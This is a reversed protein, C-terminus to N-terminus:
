SVRFFLTRPKKLKKSRGSGVPLPQRGGGPKHSQRLPSLSPFAGSRGQASSSKASPKAMEAGQHPSVGRIRAEIVERVRRATPDQPDLLLASQSLFDAEGGPRPQEGDEAVSEALRARVAASAPALRAAAKWLSPDAAGDAVWQSLVASTSVAANPSGPRTGRDALFWRVWRPYFSDGPLKALRARLSLFICPGDAGPGTEELQRDVVAEALEPLWAPARPEPRLLPMLRPPQSRRVTWCWLGDPSFGGTKQLGASGSEGEWLRVLNAASWLRAAGDLGLTAVTSGDLSFGAWSVPMSHAAWEALLRGDTVSWVRVVGDGSGTVLRAGEPSFALCLVERDHRLAPGAPAGSARDWVQATQRADGTALRRGEPSFAVRIPSDGAPLSGTRRLPRTTGLHLGGSGLALAWYRGDPSLALQRVGSLENTKQAAPLALPGGEREGSPSHWLILELKESLGLVSEGGGIFEACLLNTGGPLAVEKPPAGDATPGPLTLLRTEGASLRSLVRRGTPAVRAWARGGPRFWRREETWQGAEIRFFRLGRDSTAALFDGVPSFAVELVESGLWPPLMRGARAECVLIRDAFFFLVRAGDPSFVAQEIFRGPKFVTSVPMGTHADFLGFSRDNISAGFMRGDPSFARAGMPAMNTLPPFRDQGTEPAVLHLIGYAGAKEEGLIAGGAPSLQTAAPDDALAVGVTRAQNFRGARLERDGFILLGDGWPSCSLQKIVEPVEARVASRVWNTTSYFRVENTHPLRVAVALWAGDPSFTAASATDGPRLTWVPEASAGEPLSFVSVSGNTLGIALRRGDPSAATFRAARPLGGLPAPNSAPEWDLRSVVALGDDAFRAVLHDANGAFGFEVLDNRPLRFRALPAPAAGNRIVVLGNTEVTALLRGDPSFGATAFRGASPRIEAEPLIWTRCSLLYLLRRAAALNDPQARVLAALTNVTGPLDGARERANASEEGVTALTRSLSANAAAVTRERSVLAGAAVVLSGLTVAALIARGPHQGCWHRAREVPGVPRAQVPEHRLFRDLDDRLEAAGAYRHAPDKRLCKLCITELDKPVGPNLASPAPPLTEVAQRLAEAFTEGLFPPRGTLCQYLIAGLAHIDAAPGVERRPRGVQEPALYHVTGVTQGSLTLDSDLEVLKALGFDTVHPEGTEDLLVNSPKLDRHIVGHAHAHAMAEALGRLIRAAIPPSLPGTKLRDALSGGAVFELALVVQGGVACVEHIRAIGPHDLRGMARAERAFRDREAAEAFAGNRLFKLAVSRDVGPQRARWVTGMGGQGLFGEIRYGAPAEPAPSAPPAMLSRLLCAPCVGRTSHTALPAACRACTKLDPTNVRESPNM